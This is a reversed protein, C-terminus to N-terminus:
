KACNECFQKIMKACQARTARDGPKLYKVSGSTTGSILGKTVAWQMYTVFNGKLLDKDAFGSLDATATLDYGKSKAYLYLIKAIQGRTINNAPGFRGTDGYGSILGTNSAWTIPLSYYKGAPVDSFKSTYTVAPKGAVRYLIAAFMGRTLPDNPKFTTATTGSMLGNHYVYRVAEWVWYKTNFLDLFPLMQTKDENAFVYDGYYYSVYKKLPLVFTTTGNENYKADINANSDSSIDYLVHIDDTAVGKPVPITLQIPFRDTYSDGGCSIHCQVCNKYISSMNQTMTPKGVTLQATQQPATVNLCAGTAIIRDAADPWLDKLESDVTKVISIGAKECYSTELAAVDNWLDNDVSLYGDIDSCSYKQTFEELVTCATQADGAAKMESVAASLDSKFQGKQNTSAHPTSFSSEDSNGFKTFDGSLARVTFTYEGDALMDDTLNAMIQKSTLSPCVRDFHTDKGNKYTKIVYGCADDPITFSIWNPYKTSWKPAEPTSLKAPEEYKWTETVGANSDRYTTDSSLWALCYYTGSGNILNGIFFVYKGPSTVTNCLCYLQVNDKYVSLSITTKIDDFTTVTVYQNGFQEGDQIGGWEVVPTTLVPKTSSAALRDQADESIGEEASAASSAVDGSVAESSVEETSVASSAADGSVAESSAEEASAVSSATDGPVTESSAEEASVASAAVLTGSAATESSDTELFEAPDSSMIEEEAHSAFSIGTSFAIVVTTTLVISLLKAFYHCESGNKM